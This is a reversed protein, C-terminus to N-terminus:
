SIAHWRLFKEWIIIKRANLQGRVKNSLFQLFLPFIFCTKMQHKFTYKMCDQEVNSFVSCICDHIRNSDATHKWIMYGESLPFSDSSSGKKELSNQLNTGDKPITNKKKKILSGNKTPVEATINTIVYFCNM